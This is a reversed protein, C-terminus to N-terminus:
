YILLNFIIFFIRVIITKFIFWELVQIHGNESAYFFASKYIKFWELFQVHGYYANEDYKFEYESHKIKELM